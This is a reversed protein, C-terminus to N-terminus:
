GVASKRYHATGEFKWDHVRQCLMLTAQERERQYPRLGAARIQAGYALAAYAAGERESTGAALAM